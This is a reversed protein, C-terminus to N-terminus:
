FSGWGDAALPWPRVAEWAAGVDLLVGDRWRPAVVQLGVPLGNPHRGAPLSIAPHGSLNLPGTNFVDLPLGPAEDERGPVVGEPTWGAVTLTPTALLADDGLLEDVERAYGFRRRKADVYEDIPIELAAAMWRGFGAEFADVALAQEVVARGLELCSEVAAITFWDDDPNGTRFADGDLWEIPIGLDSEIAALATRFAAAVGEDVPPGPALRDVALIRRPPATEASLAVVGSGPPGTPDGAVGGAELSLLLRLDTVTAALPGDTTLDMWSPIPDRGILGNTPKIGALGCLAAPIRISGGGDSATALPALGAALAAASGGSSGGPSWAAGWPNVTAGFLRNATYGEFAFEPTNTKGVVIAGAAQLRAPVVGDRSAAPADARLRSGFTTRLGAVDEVDKVLLPLGELPRASAGTARRADLLRAEGRAEDPRTVV